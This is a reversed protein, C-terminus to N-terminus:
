RTWFPEGESPKGMVGALLCAPHPKQSRHAAALVTPKARPAVAPRFAPFSSVSAVGATEGERNSYPEIWQDRRQGAEQM